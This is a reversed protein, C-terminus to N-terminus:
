EKILEMAETMNGGDTCHHQKLFISAENMARIMFCLIFAERKRRVLNSIIRKPEPPTGKGNPPPPIWYDYETHRLDEDPSILLPTSCSFFDKPVRRKGFFWSGLGYRQCYHVVLPATGDNTSRPSPITSTQIIKKSFKCQDTTEVTDILSWGEETSSMETNSVMGTSFLTHPLRLHAAAICYAFMEGLLHPYQVHVKPVFESWHKAIQYMDPAAVIYPPGVPYHALGEQDNVLMAPTKPDGTVKVLDLKMWGNGFGYIQAYPKGRQAMHKQDAGDSAQGPPFHDSFDNTIPRVLVMDPDLLIIFIDDFEHTYDPTDRIKSFGYNSHEMWHLLGFPKNFYEYRDGTDHGETVKSFDPTLHIKFKNSMANQIYVNHWEEELAAEQDTCGSAIRTIIGPQKVKMAGYFFLYSQWRQYGSCDTSFVVHYKETTTDTFQPGGGVGVGAAAAEVGGVAATAMTTENKTSAKQLVSFAIGYFILIAVFTMAMIITPLSLGLIRRGHKRRHKGGVFPTPM